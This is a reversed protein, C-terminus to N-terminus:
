SSLSIVDVKPIRHEFHRGDPNTLFQPAIWKSLLMPSQHGPSFKPECPRLVLVRGCYLYKLPPVISYTELLLGNTNYISSIRSRPSVNPYRTPCAITANQSINVTFIRAENPDVTKIVSDSGKMDKGGVVLM